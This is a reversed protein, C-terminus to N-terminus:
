EYLKDLFIERFSKNISTTVSVNGFEKKETISGGLCHHLVLPDYLYAQEYSSYNLWDQAAFYLYDMVACDREKFTEIDELSLCSKKCVETAVITKPISTAFVIDAAQPDVKFNHANYNLSYSHQQLTANGMIYLHNIFESLQPNKQLLKAINTLPGICAIDVNRKNALICKELASVANPNIKIEESNDVFNKGEIGTWFIKEQSIPKEEGAAVEIEYGMLATIKKAIRARTKTDGHVTTILKLNAKSKLAYVLALADDVDTGIDTDIILARTM